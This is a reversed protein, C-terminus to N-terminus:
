GILEKNIDMLKVNDSMIRKLQKEYNEMAKKNNEYDKVM